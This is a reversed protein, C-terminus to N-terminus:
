GQYQHHEMHYRKFTTSSPIGMGINCFIGMYENARKSAFLLNHSLEHTMLSLAHSAAGGYIWAVAIYVPWSMYKSFYALVLQSLVLAIVYPVPRSDHGFLGQIEPHKELIQKRRIAHPEDTESRYFDKKVATQKSSVSLKEGGKGMKKYNRPFVLHLVLV